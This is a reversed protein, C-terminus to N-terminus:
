KIKEYIDFITESSDKEDREVKERHIRRWDGIDLNFVTDGQPEDLVWTIYLKDILKEELFKTYIDGGGIVFVEQKNLKIAEEIAINRAEEISNVIFVNNHEVKYNIDRTLIIHTRNKLPAPLSEWTKRGMIIASNITIKKFRQLDSKLHWPMSGSLGIVRNKAIAAIISFKM